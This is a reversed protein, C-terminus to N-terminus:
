WLYGSVTITAFTAGVLGALFVIIGGIILLIGNLVNLM